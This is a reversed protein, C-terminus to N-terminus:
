FQDGAKQLTFTFEAYVGEQSSVFIDQNHADIISKVMYLGLGVGKKNEGRSKDTKYFREFIKGCEEEPIGKGTNKVSFYVKEERFYLGLTIEGGKPTFKIANDMLNYLVRYIADQDGITYVPEKPLLLVPKIEGKSMREEMTLLVRHATELLDFPEMKYTLEGSQIRAVDLLNTVLRSLRKVEESVLLLYKEQLEPPITGDLIGDIFGSITTMPTRLEHSVDAIFARRMGEMQDLGDAMQNFSIALARMEDDPAVTIRKSFDGKAYSKAAISMETLPKTIQKTIFYVCLCAFAFVFIGCLLFIGTISKAERGMFTQKKTAFVAGIVKETEDLIPLGVTYTNGMQSVFAGLKRYQKGGLVQEVAAAPVEVSQVNLTTEVVRGTHNIIIMECGITDKITHITGELVTGVFFSYNAPVESLMAAVKKAANEMNQDQEQAGRLSLVGTTVTGLIFVTM